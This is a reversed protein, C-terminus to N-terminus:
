SLKDLNAIKRHACIKSALRSALYKNAFVQTAKAIAAAAQPFRRLWKPHIFRHSPRATAFGTFFGSFVLLAVRRTCFLSLAASPSAPRLDSTPPCLDPSGHLIRSEAAFASSATGTQRLRATPRQFFASFREFLGLPVRPTILPWPSVDRPDRRYVGLRRYSVPRAPSETASAM